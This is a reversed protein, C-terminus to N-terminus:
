LEPNTHADLWDAFIEKEIEERQTEWNRGSVFNKIAKVQEKSFTPM